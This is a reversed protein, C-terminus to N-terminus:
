SPEADANQAHLESTVLLRDNIFHPSPLSGLGESGESEQDFPSQTLWLLALIDQLQSLNNEAEEM